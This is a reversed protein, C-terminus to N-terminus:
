HVMTGQTKVPYKLYIQPENLYGYEGQAGPVGYTIDSVWKENPKQASFDQELLNPAVPLRHNSNTTAKFKKAARARWGNHQM